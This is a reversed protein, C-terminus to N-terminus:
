PGQREKNRDKSNSKETSKELKQHAEQKLAKAPKANKAAKTPTKEKAYKSAFPATKKNILFHRVARNHDRLNTTFESSGDGRAVFYLFDTNAPNAAAEISAPTPNSIPTPPLAPIKYTNYPTEKQLDRRTLRGKWDPGLGYIVTPDTQLPMGRKLRNHFVSSVLHRDGKVGTEKEIISALILLEYANKLETVLPSRKEWAAELLRKQRDVAQKLVSLDSSGSGYRYTEPAVFGEISTYDALGLRERLSADNLAGIDQKLNVGAALIRKVDWVNSGDPIRIQQDILPAGQLTDLIAKPSMGRNFRYLGIHLNGVAEPYLRALVHLQTDNLQIGASRIKEVVRRASDGEEVLVDVTEAGPPFDLPRKFVQWYLWGAGGGCALAGVLILLLLARLIRKLLGPKEAKEKKQSAEPKQSEERKEADKLEQADDAKEPKKEDAAASAEEPRIEAAGEDGKDLPEHAASAQSAGALAMAATSPDQTIAADSAAELANVAQPEDSLVGKSEGREDVPKEEPKGDSKEDAKNETNSQGESKKPNDTEPAAATEPALAPKEQQKEQPTELSKEKREAQASEDTCEEANVETEDSTASHQKLEADLTMPAGKVGTEKVTDESSEARAEPKQQAQSSLVVNTPTGEPTKVQAEKKSDEHQSRAKRKLKGHKPHHKASM